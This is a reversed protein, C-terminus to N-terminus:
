KRRLLLYTCYIGAFLFATCITNQILFLATNEELKVLNNIGPRGPVYIQQNFVAEQLVFLMSLNVATIILIAPIRSRNNM